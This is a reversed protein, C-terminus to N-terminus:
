PFQFLTPQNDPLNAHNVTAHNTGTGGIFNATQFFEVKGKTALKLIDNDPGLEANVLNDFSTTPITGSETGSNISLTDNGSGTDIFVKGVFTSGPGAINDIAVSDAGAGTTINTTKHVLLNDLEVTNTGGGTLTVSVGNTIAADFVQVQDGVGHGIITLSGASSPPAGFDEGFVASGTGSGLNIAVAGVVTTNVVEDGAGFFDGNSLSGTLNSISLNGGVHVLNDSLTGFSTWGGFGNAAGLGMDVVVNGAVNTEELANIDFGSAPAGSATENLVNLDGGINNFLLGKNMPDVGLNIFFNGDAHRVTLNGGVQFQNFTISDTGNGFTNTLDGTVMLSHTTGATLTNVTSNGNGFRLTLNGNVTFNRHTLDLALSDNGQGLNVSVSGTINGLTVAQGATMGNVSTTADPTITIEHAAPQSLTIGNAQADGTVILRGGVVAASVAGSPTLRDELMDFAPHFRHTTTRMPSAGEFFLAAASEM